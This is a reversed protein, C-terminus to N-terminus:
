FRDDKLVLLSCFGLVRVRTGPGVLGVHLRAQPAPTAKAHADAREGHARAGSLKKSGAEGKTFAAGEQPYTGWQEMGIAGPASAAVPLYPPGPTGRVACLTGGRVWLADGGRDVASSGLAWVAGHLIKGRDITM